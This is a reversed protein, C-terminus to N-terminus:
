QTLAIGNVAFSGDDAYRENVIFWRAGAILVTYAPPMPPDAISFVCGIGAARLRAGVDMFNAAATMAAQVDERRARAYVTPKRQPM